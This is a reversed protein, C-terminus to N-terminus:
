GYFKAFNGLFNYFRGCFNARGMYFNALNEWLIQWIQNCSFHSYQLIFVNERVPGPNTSPTPSPLSVEFRSPPTPSPLSVEVNNRTIPTPSPLSVEIRAQEPKAFTQGNLLGAGGSSKLMDLLKVTDESSLGSAQGSTLAFVLEPNKLLVALLELDPEAQTSTSPEPEPVPCDVSADEDVEPLQEIPIEPTLSDDYDMEIDWPERPNSPIDQLTQYVTEKERHIRNRQIELEKSSEGTSVQSTIQIEPPARWPIQVRRCKDLLHEKQDFAPKQDSALKQDSSSNVQKSSTPPHLRAKKQAELKPRLYAESASLFDSTLLSPRKPGDTKTKNSQLFQARLKAKQIEDATIPRRKDTPVAKVIHIKSNTKHGPQEVLQVKRREKNHAASTGLMLKKNSEDSPATLLKMAEVSEGKRTNNPDVCSPVLASDPDNVSSPWLDDGVLEGIRQTLDIDGAARTGNPKKLAQSKAFMKSWKSLLVRARNSIDPIRYFRLKNVGQLIASMHAPLAKNLPLHCLVKLAASIVSTQEENAAQSLWTALIMVGGKTLFWCLVSPNEMQLIWEMLKVQGSFTEEKCMSSFINEVFKRESEGLGPLVEDQNSSSAEEADSPGVTTLPTPNIPLMLDSDATVGDQLEKDTGARIAKERSLRVMKRVWSRQSAFYERVQTVTLGFLAGIERSEKKSIADKISFVAQMYKLAKLNLQDRPRKGINISLAGAAMEQSLPNIGTLKCQTIVVSRLQDIQSHFLQKQSEMTKQFSDMSSGIVIESSYDKLAEM